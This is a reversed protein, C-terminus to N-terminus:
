DKNKFIDAIAAMRPDPETLDCGCDGLNLNRGCKRCLGKCDDRCLVKVPRGLILEEILLRDTDLEHGNIFGTEDLEEVRKADDLKMDAEIAFDLPIDVEVDALCRDCPLTASYVAGGEILLTKDGKNILTLTLPEKVEPAPGFGGADFTEPGKVNEFRQVNGDCSLVETLDILM